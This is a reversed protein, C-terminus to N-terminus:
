CCSTASRASNLRDSTAFISCPRFASGRALVRSASAAASPTRGPCSM